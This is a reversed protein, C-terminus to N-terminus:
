SEGRTPSPLLRSLLGRAANHHPCFDYGPVLQQAHKECIPANCGIWDCLYHAPALCRVLAREVLRGNEDQKYAYIFFPCAPSMAKAARKSMRIHMVMGKIRYIM